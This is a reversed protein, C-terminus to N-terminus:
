SIYMYTYYQLYRPFIHAINHFTLFYIHLITSLQLFYIYFDNVCDGSGNWLTFYLPYFVHVSICESSIFIVIKRCWTFVRFLVLAVFNSTVHKHEWSSHAHGCFGQILHTARFPPPREASSAFVSTITLSLTARYLGRWTWIGHTSIM